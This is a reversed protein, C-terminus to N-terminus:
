NSAKNLVKVVKFVKTSPLLDIILDVAEKNMQNKGTDSYASFRTVYFESAKGDVFNLTAHNSTFGGKIDKTYHVVGKGSAKDDVWNGVYRRLGSSEYDTQVDLTGEGNYKGNRFNGRYKVNYPSIIAFDPNTEKYLEVGFGNPTLDKTEGFYVVEGKVNFLLGLADSKDSLDGKYKVKDNQWITVCPEPRPALEESRYKDDMLLSETVYYKYDDEKGNSKGEFRMKLDDMYRTCSLLNGDRFTGQIKYGESEYYTGKGNPVGKAITGEYKLSGDPYTLKGEIPKAAEEEAAKKEVAKREEAKKIEELEKNKKALEEALRAQEKQMDEVKKAEDAAKLSQTDQKLTVLEKQDDKGCGSILVVALISAIVIRSSKM